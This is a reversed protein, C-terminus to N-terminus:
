TKSDYLYRRFNRALDPPGEGIGAISLAKAVQELTREAPKALEWRLEEIEAEEPRQTEILKELHTLRAELHEVRQELSGM